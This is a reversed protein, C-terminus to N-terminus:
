PCLFIRVSCLCEEEDGRTSSGKDNEKVGHNAPEDVSVVPFVRQELDQAVDWTTLPPGFQGEGRLALEREPNVAAPTGTTLVSSMLIKALSKGAATMTNNISCM